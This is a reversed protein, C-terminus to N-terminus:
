FSLNLNFGVSRTSPVGSTEYGQAAATPAFAAEPSLGMTKFLPDRYFYGLNRGVVSFRASNIKLKSLFAPKFNYGFTVERLAVYSASLVMAERGGSWAKMAYYGQRKLVKTSKDYGGSSNEIVGDEILNDGNETFKGTGKAYQDYASYSYIQGGNRVDILASLVFGKFSVTNTLGALWKPQINGLVSRKTDAQVMGDSNLLLRGDSTRLYKFGVIDGYPRGPRAEIAIEDGNYLIQTAVGPYLSVVDSKNKSLNLGIEWTLSNSNRIPTGSMYLEIGKNSVEGSNVLKTDFGTAAPVQVQM